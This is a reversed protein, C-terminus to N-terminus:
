QNVGVLLYQKEFPMKKNLMKLFLPAKQDRLSTVCYAEWALHSLIKAEIIDEPVASQLGNLLRKVIYHRNCFTHFCILTSFLKLQVKRQVDASLGFSRGKCEAM